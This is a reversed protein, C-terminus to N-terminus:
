PPHLGSSILEGDELRFDERLVNVMTQESYYFQLQM